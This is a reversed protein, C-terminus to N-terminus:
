AGEDYNKQVPTLTRLGEEACRLAVNMNAALQELQLSLTPAMPHSNIQIADSMEAMVDKASECMHYLMMSASLLNRYKPNVGAIVFVPEFGPPAVGQSMLGDNTKNSITSYTNGADDVVFTRTLLETKDINM